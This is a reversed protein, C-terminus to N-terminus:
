KIIVKKGNVIYLGKQPAIVRRGQLDLYGNTVTDESGLSKIATVEGEGDIIWDVRSGKGGDETALAETTELYAKGAGINKAVALNYFGLGSTGNALVYHYAGEKSAAIMEDASAKLLNGEIADASSIVPIEHDGATANLLVGTGAPVTTVPSLKVKNESTLTAKYAKVALGTFDLNYTANSYTAWGTSGVTATVNNIKTLTFNTVRYGWTGWTNDTNNERGTGGIGVKIDTETGDVTFTLVPVHDNGNEANSLQGNAFLRVSAGGSWSYVQATLEYVGSPLSGITQSINRGNWGTYYQSWGDGFEVAGNADADSINEGTAVDGFITWGNTNHLEFSRNIIAKSYDTSYAATAKNIQWQSHFAYVEAVTSFTEADIDDAFDTSTEYVKCDAIAKEVDGENTAYKERIIQQIQEATLAADYVAFDDFGFAPDIDNWGFAQNGGLCVYTLNTQTFFGDLANDAITWSNLVTGDVYVKASTNTFTMTFYHWEGDDTWATSETNTGADNQAATFDYYGNSNWQLIGRTEAYFFPYWGNEGGETWGHSKTGNEAGYATFLPAYFYDTANKKNVWFSITMEKTTASHQLVDNPLLLYNTRIAKTLTPDNHFIKGFHADADEEFVGNGVISLGTTSSFDNFYVPKPVNIAWASTAGM